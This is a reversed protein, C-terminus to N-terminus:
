VCSDLSGVKRPTGSVRITKSQKAPLDGVTFTQEGNEMRATPGSPTVQLDAPVRERVVVDSLTATTLNTVKIEYEFADGMRVEAPSLREVLIASTSRNGTPFAMVARSGDPEERLDRVREERPTKRDSNDASDARRSRPEGIEASTYCGANVLLGLLSLVFVPLVHKSPSPNM